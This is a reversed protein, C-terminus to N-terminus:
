TAVQDPTHATGGFNLRNYLARLTAEDTLYDLEQCDFPKRLFRRRQADTLSEFTVDDFVVMGGLLFDRLASLRQQGDLLWGAMPKRGNEDWDMGNVVYVGCGMGLFVGEIFNRKQAASWVEPRQWPPLVKSLLLREGAHAVPTENGEILHGITYQRMRGELIPAPLPM